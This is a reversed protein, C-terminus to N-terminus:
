VSLENMAILLRILFKKGPEEPFDMVVTGLRGKTFHLHHDAQPDLYSYTNRVLYRTLLSNIGWQPTDDGTAYGWPFWPLCPADKSSVSTFNIFWDKSKDAKARELHRTIRKWKASIDAFGTRYADQLQITTGGANFHDYAKDDPWETADIGFTMEREGNAGKDRRMLVVCGQLSSLTLPFAAADNHDYLKNAPVGQVLIEHLKDNISADGDVAHNVLLVVCETPNEALFQTIAPLVDKKLWLNQFYSAHHIALDDGALRLRLDMFRIGANLQTRIDMTQCRTGEEGNGNYTGTDHTGPITIEPLTLSPNKEVLRGMWGKPSVKPTIFVSMLNWKFGNDGAPSMVQFVSFDGSRSTVPVRGDNVMGTADCGDLVFSIAERNSFKANVTFPASDRNDHREEHFFSIGASYPRLSVGKINLDPRATKDSEWDGSDKVKATLTVGFSTNNVFHVLFGVSM